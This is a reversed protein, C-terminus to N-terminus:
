PSTRPRDLDMTLDETAGIDELLNALDDAHEEEQTLIREILTRTTPDDNGLWRIVEAYTEIAVREAFLDEEIMARLTAGEAYEAHARTEIGKPDFNPRGGLQTIRHAVWDMHQQEEGAHELFEAAAAKGKTGVAMHYHNLYRLNCVIETALIENLVEIVSGLDAQYAATVAGQSMKDRARRRIAELDTKFPQKM